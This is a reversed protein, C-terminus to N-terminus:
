FFSAMHERALIFIKNSSSPQLIIRPSLVPSPTTMIRGVRNRHAPNQTQVEVTNGSIYVYMQGYAYDNLRSASGQRFTVRTYTPSHRHKDRRPRREPKRHKWWSILWINIPRM